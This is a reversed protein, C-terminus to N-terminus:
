PQDSAPKSKLLEPNDKIIKDLTDDWLRAADSVLKDTRAVISRACDALVDSGCIGVTSNNQIIWPLVRSM